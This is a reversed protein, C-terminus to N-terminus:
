FIDFLSNSVMNLTREMGIKISDGLKVNSPLQNIPVEKTTGDTLEVFAGTSNMDIIRGLM